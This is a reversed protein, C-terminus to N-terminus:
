EIQFQLLFVHPDVNMANNFHHYIPFRKRFVDGDKIEHSFFVVGGQFGRTGWGLGNSLDEFVLTTGGRQQEEAVSASYPQIDGENYSEILFRIYVTFETLGTNFTGNLQAAYTTSSPFTVNSIRLVEFQDSCHVIPLLFNIILLLLVLIKITIRPLFDMTEQQITPAYGATDLVTTLCCEIYM